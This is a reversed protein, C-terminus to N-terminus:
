KSTLLYSQLIEQNRIKKLMRSVDMENTLKRTANVIRRRVKEDSENDCLRCFRKCFTTRGTM